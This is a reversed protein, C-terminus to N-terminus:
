KKWKIEFYDKDISFHTFEKLDIPQDALFGYDDEIFSTSYKLKKGNKYFEIQRLVEGYQNTELYYDCSGWIENQEIRIEKFHRKFYLNPM